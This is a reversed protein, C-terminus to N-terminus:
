CQAEYLRAYHSEIYDAVAKEAATLLANDARLLVHDCPMIRTNKLRKECIFGNQVYWNNKMANRMLVTTGKDDAVMQLINGISNFFQKQKFLSFVGTFTIPQNSSYTILRMHRCDDPTLTARRAYPNQTSLYIAYDDALLRTAHFHMAQYRRQESDYQNLAVSTIGINFRGHLLEDPFTKMPVDHLMIDIEPYTNNIGEIIKELILNCLVPIAALHVTGSLKEREAQFTQWSTIKEELADIIDKSDNYVRLGYETPYTGTRSRHLLTVSLEEELAQISKTLAPQTMYLERAAQHFSHCEVVKLFYRLQDLKM